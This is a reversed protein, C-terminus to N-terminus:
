LKVNSNRKELFFDLLLRNYKNNDIPGIYQTQHNVKYNDLIHYQSCLGGTKPEFAGFIVRRIRSHLILGVCMVCPEITVYLDCSNLRSNNLYQMAQKIVLMEAHCSIDNQQHMRNHNSAIISDNYVIVAGIPVENSQMAILAESQAMSMYYDLINKALKPYIINQQSYQKYKVRLSQKINIELTAVNCKNVICYLDYLVLMSISPYYCRLEHFVAFINTNILTHYDYIQITKLKDILYYPIYDQMM